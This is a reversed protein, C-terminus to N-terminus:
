VVFSLGAAGIGVTLLVTTARTRISLLPQRSLRVDLAELTRLVIQHEDLDVDAFLATLSAQHDPFPDSLVQAADTSARRLYYTSLLASAVLAVLATVALLIRAPTYIQDPAASGFRLVSAYLTVLGALSGLSLTFIMRLQALLFRRCGAMHELHIRVFSELALRRAEFRM